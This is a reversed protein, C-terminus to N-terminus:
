RRFLEEADESPAEHGLVALTQTPALLAGLGLALDFGIMFRNNARLAQELDM